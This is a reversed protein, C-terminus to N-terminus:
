RAAQTVEPRVIYNHAEVNSPLPEIRDQAVLTQHIFAAATARRLPQNPELARPNPYNVVLNKQTAIGVDNIAYQPIQQADVYYDKALAAVPTTPQPAAAVLPQMLSTMALPLYVPRRVVRRTEPALNLGRTLTVLADVRSVPQNPAFFGGPYGSMFGQQYASEIALSAWHGQPVDQFASADEIQRVPEQEFAQRIMAAFEDRQVAQEPRFTGDPYGVIINREALREIFPKAWYDRPVDPFTNQASASSTLSAALGLTLLSASLHSLSSM